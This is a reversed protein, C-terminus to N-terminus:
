GEEDANVSLDTCKSADNYKCWKIDDREIKCKIELSWGLSIQVTRDGSIGESKQPGGPLFKTSTAPPVKQISSSLNSSETLSLSKSTALSTSFYKSSNNTSQVLNSNNIILAFVFFVLYM